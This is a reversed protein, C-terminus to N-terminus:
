RRRLLRWDLLGLLAITVAAMGLLPLQPHALLDLRESADLAQVVGFVGLFNHFVITAYVDRSLFFFASTVFGVGTLVAVMPITDFPPSHAFHYLGFLVSAAIAAPLWALRMHPRLWSEVAAGVLAWCVIVEAVSVVLVQAFANVLVVPDLTPAGQLLYLGFGLVLAIGLRLLSPVRGGFGADERSLAKGRVLFRLLVLALATGILINAVVAYIARDAVAEPRLLTEIRGELFWTALTWVAFLGIAALVAGQRGIGAPISPTQPQARQPSRRDARV